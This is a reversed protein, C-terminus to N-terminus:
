DEEGRRFILQGRRGDPQPEYACLGFGPEGAEDHLFAQIQQPLPAEAYLPAICVVVSVVQVHRLLRVAGRLVDLEAGEVDLHLLDCGDTRLEGRALLEDLTTLPVDLTLTQREAAAVLALPHQRCLSACLPDDGWHLTGLSPQGAVAAHLVRAGDRACRAALDAVLQPHAEIHTQDAFELASWAAVATGRGAGVHVVSRLSELLQPYQWLLNGDPLTRCTEALHRARVHAKVFAMVAHAEDADGLVDICAVAIAALLAPDGMKARLAKRLLSVGERPRGTALWLTGLALLLRRNWPSFEVSDGLGDALKPEAVALAHVRQIAAAVRGAALEERAAALVPEAREFSQALRAVATQDRAVLVVDHANHWVSHATPASEGAAVACWRAGLSDIRFGPITGGATPAAAMRTAPPVLDALAAVPQSYAFVAHAAGLRELRVDAPVLVDRQLAAVFEDAGAVSGPLRPTAQTRDVLLVAGGPRVRRAYRNWLTRTREHDGDGDLLVADCTPLLDAATAAVAADDADGAIVAHPHRLGPEGSAPPRSDILVVQRAFRAIALPLGGGGCRGVVLISPARGLGRLRRLVELTVLRPLDIAPAHQWAFQTDAYGHGLREPHGTAIADVERALQQDNM